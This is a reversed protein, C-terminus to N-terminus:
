VCECVCVCVYICVYVFVHISLCTFVRECESLYIFDAERPRPLCENPM